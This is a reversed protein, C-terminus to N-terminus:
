SGRTYGLKQLKQIAQDQEDGGKNHPLSQLFAFAEAASKLKALKPVLAKIEDSDDHWGKALLTNPAKANAPPNLKEIQDGITREAAAYKNLVSQVDSVTQAQHAGKSLDNHATDVQKAIAALKAKYQAKSLQASSGSSSGGGCGAVAFAIVCLAPLLITSIRKM